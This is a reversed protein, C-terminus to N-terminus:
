RRWRRASGRGGECRWDRRGDLVGGFEGLAEGLDGAEVADEEAVGAGFGPLGRELEGAGVGAQEAGFAFLDAGLDEGEFVAEVAAGHAGDGRGVLGGVALGEGGDHGADFENGEVVDARQAFGKAFIWLIEAGDGELDELAFAADVEDAGLEEGVARSSQSSVPARRM